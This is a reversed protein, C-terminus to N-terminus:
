KNEIAKLWRVLALPRLSDSRVSCETQAFTAAFREWNLFRHIEKPPKAPLRPYWNPMRILAEIPDGALPTKPRNLVEDPMQKRMSRRLLFKDVCWPVPPLRLLLRLVRLDLMPTRTEALAGTFSADEEELITSWHHTHLSSYALPHIPHATADESAQLAQWREPLRTQKEFEPNLWAPYGKWTQDRALLRRAKRRLGARLPPLKGHSIAFGGFRRVAELWRGQGVLFKAYPWAQGSLIDDGGDGAIGVRSHRAMAQFFVDRMQSLPNFILEREADEDPLAELWRINGTEKIVEHGIGVREATLAAFKAEQDEPILARWSITFAKLDKLRGTGAVKAAATCVTGSDMGGSLFLSVPGKPPLRDKIARELVAGYAGIVDDAKLFNAPEEVPLRLFERVRLVDHSWQLAHGAPLRRIVRYVTRTLDIGYGKLLFDGIFEEDLESSIQPVRNIAQFTNSFCFGGPFDAYFFPRAGIFDRAAYLRKELADWIGFCFDGLLQPLVAEGWLQWADLLLEEDPTEIDATAGAAVLREVLEARGDFRVDGFLWYRGDRSVPQRTSQHSGTRMLAFCGAIERQTWVTAGDPGRLELVSKIEQLLEASVSEGYTRIMCFFGSM